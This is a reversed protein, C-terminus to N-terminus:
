IIAQLAPRVEKLWRVTEESPVTEDQKLAEGLVFYWDDIQQLEIASLERYFAARAERTFVQEHRTFYTEAFRTILGLTLIKKDEVSFDKIEFDRRGESIFAHARQQFPSLEDPKGVQVLQATVHREALAEELGIHLPGSLVITKDQPHMKVHELLGRAMSRDRFVTSRVFAGLASYENNLAQEQEGDLLFRMSMEELFTFRVLEFWGEFSAPEVHVTVKETGHREQLWQIATEFYPPLEISEAREKDAAVGKDFLEQFPKLFDERRVMQIAEPHGLGVLFYDLSMKLKDAIFQYFFMRQERSAYVTNALARPIAREVWVHIQEGDSLPVAEFYTKMRAILRDEDSQQEIAANQIVSHNGLFVLLPQHEVMETVAAERMAVEIAEASEVEIPPEPLPQPVEVVATSVVEPVPEESNILQRYASSGVFAVSVFSVTFCALLAVFVLGATKVLQPRVRMILGMGVFLFLVTTGFESLLQHGQATMLNTLWGESFGSQQQFLHNSAESLFLLDLLVTGYFASIAISVFGVVVLILSGV